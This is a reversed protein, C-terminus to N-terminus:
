RPERHPPGITPRWALLRRCARDLLAVQRPDEWEAEALTIAGILADWQPRTFRPPRITM